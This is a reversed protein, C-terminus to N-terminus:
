GFLVKPNVPLFEKLDCEKTKTFVFRKPEKGSDFFSNYHGAFCQITKRNLDIVYQYEIDTHYYLTLEYENDEPHKILKNAIDEVDLNNSRQIEPYINDMLFKGVGSPYGDHHHYLKVKDTHKKGTEHHTWQRKIIIESRTSM